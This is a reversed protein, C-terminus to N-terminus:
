YKPGIQKAHIKQDLYPFLKYLFQRPSSDFKNRVSAKISLIDKLPKGYIIEYALEIDGTVSSSASRSIAALAVGTRFQDKFENSFNLLQELNSKDSGGVYGCAIGIGRWLDAHRSLHFPQIIQILENVEGRAIYWLRRGLGQDFGHLNQEDIGEPILQKKVTRGGKFLGYYYGMGDFVMWSMVPHLSDLYPTPSIETKAFAWGLGIDMHFTHTKASRRYFKMWNNLEKGRSMVQLGIEFSASEYAVSRFEPPESDLFSILHELEHNKQMYDQVSLFLKQIYDM